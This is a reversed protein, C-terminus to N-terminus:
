LFSHTKNLLGCTVHFLGAMFLFRGPPSLPEKVLCFLDLVAFDM